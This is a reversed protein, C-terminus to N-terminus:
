GNKETRVEEKHQTSSGFTNSDTQLFALLLLVEKSASCALTPCNHM